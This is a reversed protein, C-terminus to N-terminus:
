DTLPADVKLGWQRNGHEQVTLGLRRYIELNMAEGADSLRAEVERSQDVNPLLPESRLATLFQGFPEGLYLRTAPLSALEPFQLIDLGTEAADAAAQTHVLLTLTQDVSSAVAGFMEVLPMRWERYDQVTTPWRKGVDELLAVLAGSYNDGSALWNRFPRPEGDITVSIFEGVVLDALRDARYEGVFIRGMSRAIETGTV